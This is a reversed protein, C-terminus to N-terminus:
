PISVTVRTFRGPRANNPWSPRQKALFTSKEEDTEFVVGKDIHSYVKRFIHGFGGHTELVIPDTIHTLVQRRLAIKQALTTNDKPM